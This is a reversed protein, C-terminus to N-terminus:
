RRQHGQLHQQSYPEYRNTKALVPDAPSLSGYIEDTSVRLFRFAQKEDAPLCAIQDAEGIDGQM